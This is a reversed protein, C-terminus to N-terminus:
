LQIATNLRTTTAAVAASATEITGLLVTRPLATGMVLLM